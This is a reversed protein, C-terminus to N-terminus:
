KSFYYILQYSGLFPLLNSFKEFFPLWKKLFSHLILNTISPPFFCINFHRMKFLGCSKFERLLRKKTLKLYEIEEKFTMNPNLIVQLIILPNWPNPEVFVAKSGTKKVYEFVNKRQAPSLHHLLHFGFCVSNEPILNKKFFDKATMTFISVHKKKFFEELKSAYSDLPEILYVNQFKKVIPLSFRGMGAGLELATTCGNFDDSIAQTILLYIYESFLSDPYFMYKHKNVAFYSNKM